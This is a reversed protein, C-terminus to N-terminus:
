QFHEFLEVGTNRALEKAAPTFENNTLVIAREADYHSMSGYVQQVAAIGVPTSYLKCQFCVKRGERDVAVIDAGFDGSPPTVRIKKFGLRSLRSACYNEYEIGTMHSFDANGVMDIFDATLFHNKIYAIVKRAYSKTGDWLLLIFYLPFLLMMFILELFSHSIALAFMYKAEYLAIYMFYGFIIGFLIIIIKLINIVYKLVVKYFEARQWKETRDTM